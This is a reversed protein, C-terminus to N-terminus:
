EVLKGEMDLTKKETAPNNPQWIKVVVLELNPEQQKAWANFQEQSVAHGFEGYYYGDFDKLVIKQRKAGGLKKEASALRKLVERNHKM